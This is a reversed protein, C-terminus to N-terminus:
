LKLANPYIPILTKNHSDIQKLFSTGPVPPPMGHLAFNIESPEALHRKHRRNFGVAISISM